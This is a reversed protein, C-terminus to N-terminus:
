FASVITAASVARHYLPAHWWHEDPNWHDFLDAFWAVYMRELIRRLSQSPHREIYTLAEWFARRSYEAEGLQELMRLQELQNTPHLCSPTERICEIQNNGELLQYGANSRLPVFQGLAVRCRL